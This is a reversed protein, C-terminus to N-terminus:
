SIEKKKEEFEQKNIEGKAYREKLIDLASTGRHQSMSQHQSTGHGMMWRMLAVMGAIILVWWIIMFLGGGMGFFPMDWGGFPTNSGWNMMGQASVLLPISLAVIVLPFSNLIKMRNYDVM